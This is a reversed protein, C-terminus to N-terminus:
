SLVLAKKYDEIVIMDQRIHAMEPFNSIEASNELPRTIYHAIRIQPSQIRSAIITSKSDGDSGAHVFGRCAGMVLINGSATIEAGQNVDGVIVINGNFHIKQGSRIHKRLWLTEAKEAGDNIEFESRDLNETTPLGLARACERVMDVRSIIQRLELGFNNVFIESIEQLDIQRLERQGFSLFLPYGIFFNDTASMKRIIAQKLEYITCRESTLILLGSRIRQLEIIEAM